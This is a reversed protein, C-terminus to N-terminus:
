IHYLEQFDINHREGAKLRLSRSKLGYAGTYVGTERQMVVCQTWAGQGKVAYFIASGSPHSSSRSPHDFSLVPCGMISLVPENEQMLCLTSCFQKADRFEKVSDVPTFIWYRKPPEGESYSNCRTTWQAVSESTADPVIEFRRLFSSVEEAFTEDKGLVQGDEDSLVPDEPFCESWKKMVYSMVAQSPMTTDAGDERQRVFQSELAFGHLGVTSKDKADELLLTGLSLINMVEVMVELAVEIEKGLEGALLEPPVVEKASKDAGLIKRQRNGLAARRDPQSMEKAEEVSSLARLQPRRRAVLAAAAAVALSCRGACAARPVRQPAPAPPAQVPPAQCPAAFSLAM